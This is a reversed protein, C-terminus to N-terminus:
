SISTNSMSMPRQMNQPSHTWAHGYSASWMPLPNSSPRYRRSSRTIESSMSFAAGGFGLLAAQFNAAVIDRPNLVADNAASVYSVDWSVSDSWQGEAGFAARATSHQYYNIETPQGVGYPRGQFFVDEGFVNGPNAAPVVPTNLVPFSPSVERSVDNRAFGLEAWLRTRATWDWDVRAFGQLRDEVPVATIQPGFDFRCITNGGALEQM